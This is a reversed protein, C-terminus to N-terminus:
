STRTYVHVIKYCIIMSVSHLSLISCSSSFSWGGKITLLFNQQGLHLVNKTRVMGKREGKEM